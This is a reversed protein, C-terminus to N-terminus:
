RIKMNMISNCAELFLSRAHMMEHNYIVAFFILEKFVVRGIEEKKTKNKFKQKKKSKKKKKKKTTNKTTPSTFLNQLLVCLLWHGWVM